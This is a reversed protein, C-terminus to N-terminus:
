RRRRRAVILGAVCLLAAWGVGAHSGAVSCGGGGGGGSGGSTGGGSGGAGCPGADPADCARTFTCYPFVCKAGQGMCKCDTDVTCWGDAGKAAGGAPQCTMSTASYVCVDGGCQPTAICDIDNACSTPNTAAAASRAVCLSVVGVLICNFVLWTLTRASVTM